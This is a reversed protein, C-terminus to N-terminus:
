ARLHKEIFESGNHSRIYAPVGHEEVLGAMVEVKPPLEV